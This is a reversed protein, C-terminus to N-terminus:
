DDIVQLNSFLSEIDFPESKLREHQELHQGYNYESYEKKLDFLINIYRYQEIKM